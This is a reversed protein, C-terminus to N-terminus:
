TLLFQILPNQHPWLMAFAILYEKLVVEQYVLHKKREHKNDQKRQRDRELIAEIIETAPLRFTTLKMRDITVSLDILGQEAAREQIDFTRIITLNLRKAETIAGKDDLLVADANLDM